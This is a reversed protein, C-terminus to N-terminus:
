FTLDIENKLFGLIVSINPLEGSSDVMSIQTEPPVKDTIAKNVETVQQKRGHHVPFLFMCPAWQSLLMIVPGAQKSRNVHSQKIASVSWSNVAFSHTAYVLGIGNKDEAVYKSYAIEAIAM